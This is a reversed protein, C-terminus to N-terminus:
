DVLKLNPNENLLRETEEHYAEIEQKLSEANEPDGAWAGFCPRRRRENVGLTSFGFHMTSQKRSKRISHKMAKTYSM